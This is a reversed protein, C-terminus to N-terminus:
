LIGFKKMERELRQANEPEMETLPLRLTGSCLGMLEMDVNQLPRMHLLSRLANAELGRETGRDCHSRAQGTVLPTKTSQRARCLSHQSGRYCIILTGTVSLDLCKWDLACRDQWVM